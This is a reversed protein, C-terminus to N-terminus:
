KITALQNLKSRVSMDLVADPTRAILGGLLAPDIQETLEVRKANTEKALLDKLADRVADTLPRATTVDVLLQGNQEYLEHALDGIILDVEQERHQAVLYAALAKVWYEQRNPEALLKAAVTRAIVRRSFKAAAM